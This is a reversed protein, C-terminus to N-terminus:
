GEWNWIGSYRSEGSDIIIVDASEEHVSSKELVHVLMSLTFHISYLLIMTVSLLKGHHATLM